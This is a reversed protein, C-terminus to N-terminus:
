QACRGSRRGTGDPLPGPELHLQRLQRHCPDHNVGYGMADGAKQSCDLMKPDELKDYDMELQKGMRSLIFRNRVNFRHPWYISGALANGLLLLLEISGVVIMTYIFKSIDTGKNAFDIVIKILFISVFPIAADCVITIAYLPILQKRWQYVKKFVYILNQLMSYNKKDIENKNEEMTIEKLDEVILQLKGINM